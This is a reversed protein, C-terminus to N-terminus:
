RSSELPFGLRRRDVLERGWDQIKLVTIESM